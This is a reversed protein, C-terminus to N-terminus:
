LDAEAGILLECLRDPNNILLTTEGGLSPQQPSRDNIKSRAGRMQRGAGRAGKEWVELNAHDLKMEMRSVLAFKYGGLVGAMDAGVSM